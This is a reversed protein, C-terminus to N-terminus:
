LASMNLFTDLYVLTNNKASEYIADILVQTSDGSSIDNLHNAKGKCYDVMARLQLTYYEEAIEFEMDPKLDVSYQLSWGAPFHAQSRKLYLRLEDNTVIVEGNEGVLHIKLFPLRYNPMSWCSDIWGKMGNKFWIFAHVRDEVQSSFWRETTAILKEPLGFYWILLNLLHSGLEITVGGGSDEKSFRWGSHTKYVDSSYMTGEFSLLSGLVNKELLAKIGQFTCKYRLCYGVACRVEPNDRLVKVIEYNEKANKALPKEIFVHCKHNFCDKAIPIHSSVPTTIVVLDLNNEKLMDRHNQYVKLNPQFRQLAGRIFKLPEVVAVVQADEFANLISAHLLGMKGFGVIGVKLM